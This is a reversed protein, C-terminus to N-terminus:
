VDGVKENEPKELDGPVNHEVRLGPHVARLDGGRREPPVGSVDPLNFCICTPFHSHYRNQFIRKGAHVDSPQVHHDHVDHGEGAQRCEVEFYVLLYNLFRIEWCVTKLM